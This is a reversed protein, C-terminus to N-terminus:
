VVSKRDLHLAALFRLLVADGFPAAAVPELVEAIPGGDVVHAATIQLIDAYLDSGSMECGFRQTEITELLARRAADSIM